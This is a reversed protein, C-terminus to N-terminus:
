TLVGFLKTDDPYGDPKYTISIGILELQKVIDFTTDHLRTYKQHLTQAKTTAETASIATSRKLSLYDGIPKDLQYLFVVDAILELTNAIHQYRPQSEFNRALDDIGAKPIQQNNSVRSAPIKLLTKYAVKDKVKMLYHLSINDLEVGQSIVIKDIPVKSRPFTM